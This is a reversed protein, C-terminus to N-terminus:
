QRRSGDQFCRSSYDIHIQRHRLTLSFPFYISYRDLQNTQVQRSRSLRPVMETSKRDPMYALSLSLDRNSAICSGIVVTM